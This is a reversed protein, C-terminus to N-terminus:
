IALGDKKKKRVFESNYEIPRRLCGHPHESTPATRVDEAVYLLNWMWASCSNTRLVLEWKINSLALYGRLLDVLAGVRRHADFFFITPKVDSPIIGRVHIDRLARFM